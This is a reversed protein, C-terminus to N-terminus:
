NTPERTSYALVNPLERTLEVDFICGSDTLVMRPGSFYNQCKYGTNKDLKGGVM